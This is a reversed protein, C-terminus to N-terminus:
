GSFNLFCKLPTRMQPPNKQKNKKLARLQEKELNPVRKMREYIVIIKRPKKKALEEM